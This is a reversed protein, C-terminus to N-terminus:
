STAWWREWSHEPLATRLHRSVGGQRLNYHRRGSVRGAAPLRALMAEFEDERITIIGFDVKGQIDTLRV